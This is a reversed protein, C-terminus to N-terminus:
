NSNGANHLPFSLHTSSGGQVRPAPAPHPTPSTSHHPSPSKEALLLDTTFALLVWAPHTGEVPDNISGPSGHPATPRHVVSQTALHQFGRPQIPHPHPSDPHPLLHAAPTSTLLLGSTSPRTRLDHCTWTLLSNLLDPQFHRIMLFCRVFVFHPVKMVFFCHPPPHPPFDTNRLFTLTMSSLSLSHLELNFSVAFHSGQGGGPDQAPPPLPLSLGTLDSVALLVSPATSFLM